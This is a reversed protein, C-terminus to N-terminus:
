ETTKEPEEKPVGSVNSRIEDMTSGFPDKGGQAKIYDLRRDIVRKANDKSNAMTRIVKPTLFVSLNTKSRNTRKSKFLWGIIPLDGLLPVKSVEEEDQDRILGGLVATDGDNVVITTQIDRTAMSKTIDQLATPLGEVNTLQKISQKIEMRIASTAPSIFPKIELMTTANDMEVSTSEGTTSVTKTVKVPVRDGVEIKATQNDLAMIQPTSLINAKTTKKILNIFGLLSPVKTEKNSVPDKLTIPAGSSSFPLITGAGATPNLMEALNIGGNFGARAVGNEGAFQYYGIKWDDLNAAKMEMIIAEIYVQDRAIDIKNLISLVMEYDQKSATVVLSNTGKDANIKVDGGFIEASAQAGFPPGFPSPTPAGPSGGPRPSADKAVGKLVEAIKEADGYKVYYVHVGGNQDVPLRFDLQAILKKVRAIGAKSGTVVISNTRDDPISMFFGSGQSAGGARSFRPVGGSFTGSRANTKEGKNVVRDILDALDKAKGYRIPIVELQDDFGPVDLQNLIKMIRDINSGFDSIILSNTPSYHKIEGHNSQLMGLERTVQEAQIHKLNVIRTILQDTNPYYSGSYTEISDRQASRAMKVKLFSGSPVITFGNIALASLFARYAEAVTIKSPAIITIKGRVGNEIIFNKGTLESIAKIVDNIDVNPFDFSEITEPFNESTIDEPNAKAFKDKQETSLSQGKNSPPPTTQAGATPAVLSLSMLIKLARKM